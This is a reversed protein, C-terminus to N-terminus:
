GRGVRSILRALEFRNSVGLKEYAARVHSKITEPSLCFEDALERNTKGTAYMGELIETQRTSLSYREQLLLWVNRQSRSGGGLAKEMAQLFTEVEFPKVLFDVAGKRLCDVAADLTAHGTIVMVRAAIGEEQLTAMLSPGDLGPMRLDTVLLDFPEGRLLRLAEGGDSATQADYGRARAATALSTLLPTEDDAILVRTLRPRSPAASADPRGTVM